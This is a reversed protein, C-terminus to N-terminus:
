MSRYETVHQTNPKEENGETKKDSYFYQVGMATCYTCYIFIIKTINEHVSTIYIHMCYLAM